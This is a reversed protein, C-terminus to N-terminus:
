AGTQRKSHDRKWWLVRVRGEIGRAAYMSTGCGAMVRRDDEAAGLM